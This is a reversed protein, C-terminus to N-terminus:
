AAEEQEQNTESLRLAWRMETRLGEQMWLWDGDSFRTPDLEMVRNFAQNIIRDRLLGKRGAVALSIIEMWRLYRRAVERRMWRRDGYVTRQAEAEEAFHFALGAPFEPEESM